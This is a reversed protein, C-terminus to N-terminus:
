FSLFIRVAAATGAEAWKRTQLHSSRTTPDAKKPLFSGGQQGPQQVLQEESEQPVVGVPQPAQRGQELPVPAPKLVPHV